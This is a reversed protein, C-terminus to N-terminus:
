NNWVKNLSNDVDKNNTVNKYLSETMSHSNNKKNIKIKCKVKGVLILKSNIKKKRKIKKM